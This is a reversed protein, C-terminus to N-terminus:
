ILEKTINKAESPYKQGRSAEIVESTLFFIMGMNM